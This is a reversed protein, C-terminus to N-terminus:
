AKKAIVVAVENMKGLPRVGSPIAIDSLRKVAAVGMERVDITFNQPIADPLCSVKLYRIVQRVFGGLKVGACDMTGALQIPVRVQLPVGQAVEFLDIHEIVYSTRHYQIEKVLVRLTKGEHQLTLLKTSLTNRELVRLMGNIEEQSLYLAVPKARPGYLIAPIKGERRARSLDGKKGIERSYGTLQM